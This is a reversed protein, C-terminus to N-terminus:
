RQAFLEEVSLTTTSLDTINSSTHMDSTINNIYMYNTDNIMTSNIHTCGEVSTPYKYVYPKYFVAGLGMWGTFVSIFMFYM